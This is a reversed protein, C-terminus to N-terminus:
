EVEKVPDMQITSDYYTQNDQGQGTLPETTPHECKKYLFVRLKTLGFLGCHVLGIALVASVGYIPPWTPYDSWDLM